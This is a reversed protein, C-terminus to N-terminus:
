CIFFLIIATVLTVIWPIFIIKFLNKGGFLLTLLGKFSVNSIIATIIIKWGDNILLKGENVLKATSLSIADMDTIGSFIAIVSLGKNGLQEKSFSIALLIASYLIGFLLATKFEAPNSPKPMENGNHISKKWPIVISLISVTFLIGLPLLTINFQPSILFLEFFVRIYLVGWAILIIVANKEPVSSIKKSSKAHALTAATSSIIGGLLGGLLIGYKEGYFKSIIYAILSIGVMLVVLMWIDHPNIILFPDITRNPIIPFIVLSILVFQMIAKLEKESFRSAFGRMQFKSQLIVVITGAIATALWIPGLRVIVGSIFLLLMSFETSLGSHKEFIKKNSTTLRATIMVSITGIFGMAIIWTGYKEALFASVTGLISILSFTRLGGFPSGAWQRQLGVLLGLSLSIIIQYFPEIDMKM